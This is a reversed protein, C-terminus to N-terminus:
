RLYLVTGGAVSRLNTVIVTTPTYLVEGRWRDNFTVPGFRGSVSSGTLIV